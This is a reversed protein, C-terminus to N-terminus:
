TADCPKAEVFERMQPLVALVRRALGKRETGFWMLTAKTEDEHKALLQRLTLCGADLAGEVTDFPGRYGAHYADHGLIQMLGWRTGMAVWNGEGGLDVPHEGLLARNPTWETLSADWGSCVEVISCVLAPSIGHKEAAALAKLAM